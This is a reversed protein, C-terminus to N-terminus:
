VRAARAYDRAADKRAHFDISRYGNAPEIGHNKTDSIKADLARPLAFEIATITLQVALKTTPSVKRDSLTLKTQKYLRPTRVM